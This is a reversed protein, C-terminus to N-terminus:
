PCPGELSILDSYLNICNNIHSMRQDLSLLVFFLFSRVSSWTLPPGSTIRHLIQLSSHILFSRLTLLDHGNINIDRVTRNQTLLTWSAMENGLDWGKGISWANAIYLGCNISRAPRDKPKIRMSPAAGVKVVKSTFPTSNLGVYM